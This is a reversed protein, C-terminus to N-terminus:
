TLGQYNSPIATPSNGNLDDFTIVTCQAATGFLSMACLLKPFHRM